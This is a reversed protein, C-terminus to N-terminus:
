PDVKRILCRIVYFLGCLGGFAAGCEFFHKLRTTVEDGTSNVATSPGYKATHYEILFGVGFFVLGVFVAPILIIALFKLWRLWAPDRPEDPDIEPKFTAADVVVEKIAGILFGFVGEDEDNDDLPM